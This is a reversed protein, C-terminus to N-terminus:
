FGPELGFAGSGVFNCLRETALRMPSLQRCWQLNLANRASSNCALVQGRGWGPLWVTVPLQMEAWTGGNVPRRIPPGQGLGRKITEDLGDKPPGQFCMKVSWNLRETTDLENHGWMNESSPAQTWYRTLSSLHWLSCPVPLYFILFENSFFNM